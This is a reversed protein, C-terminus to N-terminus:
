FIVSELIATTVGLFFSGVSPTVSLFDEFLATVLHPLFISSVLIFFSFLSKDPEIFIEYYEGGEFEAVSINLYIEREYKLKRRCRYCQSLVGSFQSPPLQFGDSPPWPPPSVLSYQEKKGKKFDLILGRILSVSTPNRILRISLSFSIPPPYSLSYSFVKATNNEKLVSCHVSNEYFIFIYQTLISKLPM